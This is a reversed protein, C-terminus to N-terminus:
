GCISTVLFKRTFEGDVNDGLELLPALPIVESYTSEKRIWYDFIKQALATNIFPHQEAM